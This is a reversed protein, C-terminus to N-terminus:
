GRARLAMTTTSTAILREEDGALSVVEGHCVTLRKGARVVRGRAVFREGTAPELLNLKFEVTLVDSETEAASYAAYGCASDVAAAVVGAHLFGHQQTLREAFPFELDVEGRPPTSSARASSPWSRSHRSRRGSAATSSPV